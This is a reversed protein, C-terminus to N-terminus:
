HFKLMCEKRTQTQCMYIKFFNLNLLNVWKATFEPWIVKLIKDPCIEHIEKKKEQLCNYSSECGAYDTKTEIHKLYVDM